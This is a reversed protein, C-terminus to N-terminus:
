HLIKLHHITISRWSIFSKNRQKQPLIYRLLMAVACFRYKGKPKDVNICSNTSVPM